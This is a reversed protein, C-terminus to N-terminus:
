LNFLGYVSCFTHSSICIMMLFLPIHIVVMILERVKIYGGGCDIKQEHKVTFQIVLTKDRNSFSDFKASTAYFHANESTQIGALFLIEFNPHPSCYGSNGYISKKFLLINSIHGVRVSCHSQRHTKSVHSMCANVNM